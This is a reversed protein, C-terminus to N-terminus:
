KTQNAVSSGTFANLNDNMMDRTTNRYVEGVDQRADTLNQTLNRVTENNKVQDFGKLIGGFFTEWGLGMIALIIAAALIWTLKIGFIM